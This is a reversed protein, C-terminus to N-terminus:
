PFGWWLGGKRGGAFFSALRQTHNQKLCGDEAAGPILVRTLNLTKHNVTPFFTFILIFCLKLFFFLLIAAHKRCGSAIIYLESHYLLSGGSTCPRTLTKGLIWIWNYGVHPHSRLRAALAPWRLSTISTPLCRLPPFSSTSSCSSSFLGDQRARQGTDTGSM